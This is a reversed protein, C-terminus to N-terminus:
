GSNSFFVKGDFGAFGVLKKALEVQPKTYFLNTVNIIRGAQSKIASVVEINSHGLPATAIGSIFDLYKKGSTDYVYCGRGYELIIKSRGYTPMIYQAELRFLAAAKM